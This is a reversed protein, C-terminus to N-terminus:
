QSQAGARQNNPHCVKQMLCIVTKRHFIPRRLRQSKRPLHPREENRPSRRLRRQKERPEARHRESPPTLSAKPLRVRNQRRRSPASQALLQRLTRSMDTRVNTDAEFQGRLVPQSMGCSRQDM